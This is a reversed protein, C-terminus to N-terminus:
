RPLEGSVPEDDIKLYKEIEQEIFLAEESSSFGSILEIVEGQNTVAQVAYLTPYPRGSYNIVEKTYLQKLNHQKLDKQGFWPLPRHTITLSNQSVRIYTKNLYVALVGYLLGLGVAGHLLGFLAMSYIKQKIAIYFWVAMFGNWFLCFFTLFIIAPTFWKRTITLGEVSRELSFDKPKNTPAREKGAASPVSFSFVNNCNTCKAIKGVLDVDLMPIESGCSLCHIKM